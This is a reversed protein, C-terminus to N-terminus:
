PTKLYAILKAKADADIQGSPPMAGAEIKLLAKSGKFAAASDFAKQKVGDHCKGCQAQVVPKIDLWAQTPAPKPTEPADDKKSSGCSTFTWFMWVLGLLKM